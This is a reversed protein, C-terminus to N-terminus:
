GLLCNFLFKFTSATQARFQPSFGFLIIKGEGHKVDILAAKKSLYKEGILWGSQLIREEPYRVVVKFEEEKASQQFEFAPYNRWFLILSDEAVGFSFPHSMDINVKLTSGPCLFDKPKVDKLVNRIPLKLEEIAFNSAEGLTILTGGTKVFELLKEVGEKGIGSRYEQPFEPVVAKPGRLKTYHEELGEGLILCKPDSPLIIVDYNENLQGEKIESDLVTKYDFYYQEFLWRTWGEQINGGWYRKYMGIRLPKVPKKDFSESDVAHFVVHHRDALKTLEKRLGEQSPIYFAGIPMDRIPELLRYVKKGSKLLSNVVKFSENLRGDLLHRESKEVEGKPLQIEPCKEFSGKLPKSTEIVRIGMFEALTDTATDYPPIPTGDIKRTWPGDNYFTQKLLKLIYPRCAQASFIIYTGIPFM